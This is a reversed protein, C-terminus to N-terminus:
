KPPALLGLQMMLTAVDFVGWHESILGDADFRCVDASCVVFKKGTPPAGLFPGRHTGEIRNYSLVLDGEAIMFLSAFRLDPFSEKYMGLVRAFGAYGKTLEAPLGSEQHDPRDVTLFRNALDLRGTNIVDEILKRFNEKNREQENMTEEERRRRDVGFAALNQL